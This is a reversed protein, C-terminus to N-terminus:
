RPQITDCVLAESRARVEIKVKQGDTLSRWMSEKVECTGKGLDVIYKEHRKGGRRTGLVQAADASPV